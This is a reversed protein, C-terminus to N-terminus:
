VMEKPVSNNLAVIIGFWKTSFTNNTLIAEIEENKKAKRLSDLVNNM